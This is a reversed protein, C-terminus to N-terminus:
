APPSTSTTPAAASAPAEEAATSVRPPEISVVLSEGSTVLSFGSPLPVQAATLHERLGLTSIDVELSEPLSAAPGSIELQHLMIDLIGGEVKVGPATGTLTLPISARISEGSSVRLLDAHEIVRTIPDRQIGRVLATEHRGGDLTIEILHHEAGARIVETIQRLGISISLAQEGHGYLTAPIRGNRRLAKAATTGVASRSALELLTPPL